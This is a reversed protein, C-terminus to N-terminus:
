ALDRRLTSRHIVLMLTKLDQTLVEQIQHLISLFVCVFKGRYLKQV